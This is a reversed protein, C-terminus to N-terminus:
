SEMRTHLLFYIFLYSADFAIDKEAIYAIKM